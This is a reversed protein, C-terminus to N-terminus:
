QEIEYSAMDQRLTGNGLNVHRNVVPLVVASDQEVLLAAASTMTVYQRLGALVAVALDHALAATPEDLLLLSPQQALVLEIALMQRQGGSLLGARATRRECLIPFREGLRAPTRGERRAEATSLDHNEQVTLNPFIRGGQMLYGIGLRQREAIGMGHIDHGNFHVSGKTPILLGAVVKLTTSKGAGNHGFVAVIEGAGVTLTLGRLIEKRLYGAHIDRLELVSSNM